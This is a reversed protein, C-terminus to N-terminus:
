RPAGGEKPYDGKCGVGKYVIFMETGIVGQNTDKIRTRKRAGTHGKM